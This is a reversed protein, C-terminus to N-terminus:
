IILNQNKFKKSKAIQIFNTAYYDVNKKLKTSVFNQYIHYVYLM